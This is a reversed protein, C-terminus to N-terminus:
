HRETEEAIHDQGAAAGYPIVLTIPRNPYDEEATAAIPAIAISAILALSSRRTFSM